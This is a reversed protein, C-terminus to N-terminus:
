VNNSFVFNVPRLLPNLRPLGDSCDLNTEWTITSSSGDSVVVRSGTSEALAALALLFKWFSLSMFLAFGRVGSRLLFISASSAARFAFASFSVVVAGISDM